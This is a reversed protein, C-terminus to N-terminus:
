PWPTGTWIVRVGSPSSRSTAISKPPLELEAAAGRLLVPCFCYRCDAHRYFGLLHPITETNDSQSGMRSDATSTKMALETMWM